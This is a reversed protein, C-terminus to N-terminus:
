AVFIIDSKTWPVFHVSKPLCIAAENRTSWRNQYHFHVLATMVNERRSICGTCDRERIKQRGSFNQQAIPFKEFSGASPSNLRRIKGSQFCCSFSPITKFSHFYCPFVKVPIEYSANRPQTFFFFINSFSFWRVQNISRANSENFAARKLQM